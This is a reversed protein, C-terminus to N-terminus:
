WHQNPLQLVRIELSDRSTLYLITFRICGKQDPGRPLTTLSLRRNPDWACRTGKCHANLGSHAIPIAFHYHGVWFM